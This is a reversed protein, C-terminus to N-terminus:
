GPIQATEAPSAARSRETWASFLKSAEGSVLFIAALGAWGPLGATIALATAIAPGVMFQANTGINFVSLYRGQQDEPSLDYSVQWSAASHLNEGATLLLIGLLLLASAAVANGFHAAGLCAVGVALV